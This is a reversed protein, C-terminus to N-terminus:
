VGRAGGHAASGDPIDRSAPTSEMRDNKTPSDSGDSARELDDTGVKVVRTVDDKEASIKKDIEMNLYALLQNYQLTTLAVTTGVHFTDVIYKHLEANSVGARSATEFIQGRQEFTLGRKVPEAIAQNLDHVPPLSRVPRRSVRSEDVAAAQEMEESSYVGGLEDPFAMRLAACEAVKKIMTEPKSLWNNRGTSYEKLAVEERAPQEWDSRYVEAWGGICRGAEDRLVGRKTGVHKGTRSARVRFGDLGVVITGPSSGYKIFFIEGPKLPDFGLNKARYLFLKLEDTTANRAVTNRILEKAELSAIFRIGRLGL